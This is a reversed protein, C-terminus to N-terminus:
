KWFGKQTNWFKMTEDYTRYVVQAGDDKWIEVISKRNMVEVFIDYFEKIKEDELKDSAVIHYNVTVNELGKIEQQQFTKLNGINKTGTIGVVKVKDSTIWPQADKLFEISCDIHGAVVDRTADVTGQYPVFTINKLNSNYVIKRAVMEVISGNVIGLTLNKVNKMDHITDYKKCILVVPSDNSSIVVPKLKNIDYSENPYYIPRIFISTSMMLLTPKNQNIVHNVAISGGAGPKNVFLFTYKKQSNNAEDIITRLANAQNSAPSFPWVIPVVEEAFCTSCLIILSLILKKM